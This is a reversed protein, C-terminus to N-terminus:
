IVIEQYKMLFEICDRDNAESILDQDSFRIMDIVPEQHKRIDYINRM